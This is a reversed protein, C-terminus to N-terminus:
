LESLPVCRLGKRQAEQLTRTIQSQAEQTTLGSTEIVILGPAPGGQTIREPMVLRTNRPADALSALNARGRAPLFYQPHVGTNQRLEAAAARTQARDKWPASFPSSESEEAVGFSVGEAPYLGKAGQADAFITVQLKEREVKSELAAATDPDTVRVGIAFRGPSANSGPINLNFGKSALAVGPPAFGVWFLFALAFMSVLVPRPRLIRQPRVPQPATVLSELVTSISPANEEKYPAPLAIEGRSAAQLIDVLEERTHMLRAARARDMVRSNLVGHGPIPNFLLIPLGVEVAEVCTMGGANQILCDSAAMIGPMDKTWGLIRVREKAKFEAELRAKLAANRGTVIVTYVGSDVACRAAGEVDGIGWAGGVVLAVFNKEPLGLATRTEEYRGRANRFAPAVPPRILSAEGGAREAMQVSIRSVVLHLDAGPSVWLPHVGYDPIIATVPVRLKGKKRLHGLASTVLPYTSVIVDPRESLVAKLLGRSFFLGVIIRVAGATPRFSALSFLAGLTWPTHELQGVYGKRLLWDLVQNMPRLGDMMVVHHGAAEVEDRVARGAAEHGGGVAATLILVKLPASPVYGDEEVRLMDERSSGRILLMYAAGLLLLILAVVTYVDM